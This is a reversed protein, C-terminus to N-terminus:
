DFREEVNQGAFPRSNESDVGDGNREDYALLPEAGIKVSDLANFAHEDLPHDSTHRCNSNVVNRGTVRQEPRRAAILDPSLREDPDITAFRERPAQNTQPLTRLDGDLAAM